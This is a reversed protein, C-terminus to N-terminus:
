EKFFYKEFNRIDMEATDVDSAHVINECARKEINGRYISDIGFDGRITGKPSAAPDTKGVIARAESVADGDKELIMAIVDSSTAYVRNWKNLQRGIEIPVETGFIEKVKEREGRDTMAQLTKKGMGELQAQSDQYLLESLEKSIRGKRINVIKFGAKEFRDIVTGVLGRKIGDPKLFILERSM